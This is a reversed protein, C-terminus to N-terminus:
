FQSERGAWGGRRFLLEAPAAARTSVFIDFDASGIGSTGLWPSDEVTGTSFAAVGNGLGGGDGATPLSIVGGFTVGFLVDLENFGRVRSKSSKGGVKLGRVRKPPSVFFRARTLENAHTSPVDM